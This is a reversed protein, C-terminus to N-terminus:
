ERCQGRPYKSFVAGATDGRSPFARQPEGNGENLAKLPTAEVEVQLRRGVEKPKRWQPRMRPASAVM